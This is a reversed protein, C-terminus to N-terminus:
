YKISNEVIQALNAVACVPENGQRWAGTLGEKPLHPMGRTRNQLEPPLDHLEETAVDDDANTNIDGVTEVVVFILAARRGSDYNGTVTREPCRAPRGSAPQWVRITTASAFGRFPITSCLLVTFSTAM